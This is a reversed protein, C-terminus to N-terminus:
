DSSPTTADSGHENDEFRNDLPDYDFGVEDDNEPARLERDFIKGMIPAIERMTYKGQALLEVFARKTIGAIEDIKLDRDGHDDAPLLLGRLDIPARAPQAAHKKARHRAQREAASLPM